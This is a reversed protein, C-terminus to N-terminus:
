QILNSLQLRLYYCGRKLEHYVSMGDSSLNALKFRRQTDFLFLGEIQLASQFRDIRSESSSLFASFWVDICLLNGIAGNLADRLLVVFDFPERCQNFVEAFFQGRLRLEDCLLIVLM